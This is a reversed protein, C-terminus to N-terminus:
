TLKIFQEFDHVSRKVKITHITHLQHTDFGVIWPLSTGIESNPHLYLATFLLLAAFYFKREIIFNHTM